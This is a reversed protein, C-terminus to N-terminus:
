TASGAGEIRYGNKKDAKVEYLARDAREYLERFTKEEQAVAVGISASVTVSQEGHGYTYVLAANIKEACKRVASLDPLNRIFLVFEDGGLRGALDSRRISSKLRIGTDHLVQDGSLHGLMDNVQKFYDLDLLFM